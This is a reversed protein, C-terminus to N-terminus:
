YLRKVIYEMIIIKTSMDKKKWKIIHGKNKNITLKM